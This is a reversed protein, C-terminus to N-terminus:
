GTVIRKSPDVTHDISILRHDAHRWRPPPAVIADARGVEAEPHLQAKIRSAPQVRVERCGELRTHDCEIPRALKHRVTAPAFENGGDMRRARVHRKLPPM